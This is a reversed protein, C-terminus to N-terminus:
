IFAHGGGNMGRKLRHLALANYAIIGLIEVASHIMICLYIDFGAILLAYSGIRYLAAALVFYWQTRQMDLKLYIGSTCSSIFRVLLLPSLFGAIMGATAWHRGFALSFIWEGFFFVLAFPIIGLLAMGTWVLMMARLLAILDDQERSIYQLFAQGVASGILAAPASLLMMALSYHGALGLSGFAGVLFLPAQNSFNDVVENPMVYRPYRIYRRATGRLSRMSPHPGARRFIYWYCAGALLFLGAIYGIILGSIVKWGSLLAQVVGAVLSQSAKFVAIRKMQFQRLSYYNFIHGASFSLAFIPLLLAIETVSLSFPLSTGLAWLLIGSLSITAAVTLSILSALYQAGRADEESKAMLIVKEFSGTALPVLVAGCGLFISYRGFEASDYLRTLVFSFLFTILQAVATGSMLTSANFILKRAAFM